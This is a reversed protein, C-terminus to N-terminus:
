WADEDRGPESVPCGYIDVIPLLQPGTPKLADSLKPVVLNLVTLDMSYFVCPLAIVAFGISERREAGPSTTSNTM